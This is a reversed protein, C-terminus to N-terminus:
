SQSIYYTMWKVEAATYEVTYDLNLIIDTIEWESVSEMSMSFSGALWNSTWRDRDAAEPNEAIWDEMLQRDNTLENITM